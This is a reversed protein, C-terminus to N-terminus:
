CHSPFYRIVVEKATKSIEEPKWDKFVIHEYMAAELAFILDQFGVEDYQYSQTEVDYKIKDEVLLIAGAHYRSTLTAPISKIGVLDESHYYEWFMFLFYKFIALLLVIGMVEPLYEAVDEMFLVCVAIAGYVLVTFVTFREVEDFQQSDLFGQFNKKM